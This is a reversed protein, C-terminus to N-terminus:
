GRWKRIELMQLTLFIFIFIFCIFYVLDHTDIIGKVFNQFHNVMALQEIIEGMRPSLAFKGAGMVWFILLGGVTGLAATVQDSTLSSIWMGFALFALSLLFLGLYSSGIIGWPTPTIYRTFVIMYVISFGYIFLMVMLAALFKGMIIQMETVPYTFLLEMTGLKKEESFLRMTIVPILFIMLFGMLSFLPSLVGDVPNTRSMMHMSRTAYMSMQSYRIMLVYFYYGTIILYFTFFVYAISSNFYNRLEKKFIQFTNM